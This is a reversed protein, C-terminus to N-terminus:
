NMGPHAKEQDLKWRVDVLHKYLDQNNKFDDECRKIDDYYEKPLFAYLMFVRRLNTIEESSIHPMRLVSGETFTLQAEDGRIFGEDICVDRLKQGVMPQFISVVSVDPRIEGCLDITEFIEDRTEYPFGIMFFGASRIQRARLRAFAERIKEKKTRRNCVDFLIRESGAEVGMSVQFFPANARELLDLKEETVTEPRTQCIFPLRIRQSYLDIFQELWATPHGLFCEDMFYLLEIKHERIMQEMGAIASEPPRHRVFKGLGKYADKIATNGCYTCSYPCGRAVEFAYRRVIKGDFPYKFYEDGFLSFDPAISWLNDADLLNQKKNEETTKSQRDYYITGTIGKIGDGTGVRDLIEAFTVEGEGTCALDVIFHREFNGAAVIAHTGGIVRIVHDPIEVEDWFILLFEYDITM